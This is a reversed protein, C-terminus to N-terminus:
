EGGRWARAALQDLLVVVQQAVQPELGLLEHRGLAELLQQALDIRLVRPQLLVIRV